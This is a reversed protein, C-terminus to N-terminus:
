EAADVMARWVAVPGGHKTEKQVRRWASKMELTPDTPVVRFGHGALRALMLDAAEESTDFSVEESFIEALIQRATM